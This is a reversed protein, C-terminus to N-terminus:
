RRVVHNGFRGIGEVEVEVRQGPRVPGVGAPSGTLILDGPLLTFITSAYTLLEPVGRVMESTSGDQRLEGDVWARVALDSVDLDVTVFPGTPCSTDFAKGRT